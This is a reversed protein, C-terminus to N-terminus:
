KIRIVYYWCGACYVSLDVGCFLYLVRHSPLSITYIICHLMVGYFFFGLWVYRKWKRPCNWLIWLTKSCFFLFLFRVVSTAVYLQSTITDSIAVPSKWRIYMSSSFWGHVFFFTFSFLTVWSKQKWFKWKTDVSCLLALLSDYCASDKDDYM